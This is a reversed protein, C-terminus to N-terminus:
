YDQAMYGVMYPQTFLVTTRSSYGVVRTFLAMDVRRPSFSSFQGKEIVHEHCSLLYKLCVQQLVNSFLNMIRKRARM